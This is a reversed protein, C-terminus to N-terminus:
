PCMEVSIHLSPASRGCEPSAPDTHSWPQSETQWSPPNYQPAWLSWGHEPGSHLHLIQCKTSLLLAFFVCVCFGLGPNCGLERLHRGLKGWECRKKVDWKFVQPFSASIHFHPLINQSILCTDNQRFLATPEKQKNRSGITKVTVRWSNSMPWCTCSLSIEGM